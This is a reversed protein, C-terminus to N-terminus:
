LETAMDVTATPQLEDKVDYCILHDLVGPAPAPQALAVGASAMAAGVVMAALSRKM